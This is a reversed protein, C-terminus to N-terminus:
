KIPAGCTDCPKLKNYPSESLKSFEFSAMPLYKKGVDPCEAEAHYFSGGNKNYYMKTKPNTTPEPTPTPAPTPTADPDPTPTPKDILVGTSLSNPDVYWKGDELLLVADYQYTRLSNYYNVDAVVSITRATSAETGTPEGVQSWESLPKQGFKWYLTQSPNEQEARWSPATLEIMDAVISKRWKEMFNELTIEAGSKEGSSQSAYPDAASMADAAGTTGAASTDEYYGVPVSTGMTNYMSSFASTAAPIPTTNLFDTHKVPKKGAGGASLATVLTFVLALGYIASLIMRGPFLFAHVMWMLALAAIVLIMFIWRIPQFFVALLGIVPLVIFFVMLLLQNWERKPKKPRPKRDLAKSSGAPSSSYNPRNSRM